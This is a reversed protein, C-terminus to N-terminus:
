KKFLKLIKNVPRVIFNHFLGYKIYLADVVGEAANAVLIIVAGRNKEDKLQRKQIGTLLFKDSYIKNKFCVIYEIVADNWNRIYIQCRRYQYVKLIEVTM